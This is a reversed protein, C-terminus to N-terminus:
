LGALKQGDALIAAVREKSTTETYIRILPETGSFRVLLWGGDEMLFKYGDITICETVALGGLTCAGIDVKELRRRAADKMEESTLRIDIRDYYHEGVREFLLQLLETPRKGTRVMLDLLYLNSLIGDREPM